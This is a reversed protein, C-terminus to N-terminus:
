KKRFLRAAELLATKENEAREDLVMDLLRALTKGIEAGEPMGIAILDRGNVALDKLTFCQREEIIRDILMEITELADLKDKRYKESQAMSDARKVEALQRLRREGIRNLWRRVNKADPLVGADHYLVLQTVADITENDYRLRRLTRNAIDASMLPHGHFHGRGNVETYCDPKAIDHLLMTLRLTVDAPAHDVSEATHEWVDLYHYPTNQDFGIMAEIEPIIETLVPAHERLTAGAKAGTLLKSLEVSIREASINRLLSKRRHAAAATEGSISFGLTSAFRLARMVRLADERFRTDADGVCRITGSQLDAEGGFYDVLGRSPNYAMANITFDRRSLDARLDGVFEVSDPRRNDSYMGDVRYTTIEFPKNNLMLTITGHKLGTEVVHCGKFIEITREPLSPTCIDWDVPAKGLLCDRVCGGVAYAEYGGDSIAAIISAVEDPIDIMDAM